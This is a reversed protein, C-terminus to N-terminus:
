ANIVQKNSERIRQLFDENIKLKETGAQIGIGAEPIKHSGFFRKVEESRGVGFYPIGITLYRSVTGVGEYIKRLWEINRSVWDWTVARADPNRMVGGLLNLVYQKKVEGSVALGLARSVLSPDKFSTLGGLFRAKEEESSTEKYSKLLTEFNSTSRAFATVIASKMDPEVSDYDKFQSAAKRAYDDDVFSLRSAVVGRLVVSNEDRLDELRNM